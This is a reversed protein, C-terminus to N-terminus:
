QIRRYRAEILSYAGFLALGAGVIVILTSGSRQAAVTRLAAALGGAEGADNQWAAQAFFWAVLAFAV